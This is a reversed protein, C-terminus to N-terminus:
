RRKGMFEEITKIDGILIFQAIKDEKFYQYSFRFNESQNVFRIIKEVKKELEKENEVAENILIAGTEAIPKQEIFRTIKEHNNEMVKGSVSPDQFLNEIDEETFRWQVGVKKGQLKGDKIYNRITRETLGTMQAVDSVTYLKELFGDGKM